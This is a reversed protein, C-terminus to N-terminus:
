LVLQSNKPGPLLNTMSSHAGPYSCSCSFATTTAKLVDLQQQQMRKLQQWM